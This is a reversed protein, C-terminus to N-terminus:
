LAKGIVVGSVLVSFVILTIVLFAWDKQFLFVFITLGVRAMPLAILLLLGVAIVVDPQFGRLGQILESGHQPPSFDAIEHGQVLETILARSSGVETHIHAFRGIVGAAIVVLCLLVGYRLVASILLETRLLRDSKDM